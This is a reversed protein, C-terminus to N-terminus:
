VPFCHKQDGDNKCPERSVSKNMKKQLFYHSGEFKMSKNGEDAFSREVESLTHFVFNAPPAM